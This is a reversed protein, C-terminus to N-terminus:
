DWASEEDGLTAAAMALQVMGFAMIGGNENRRVEMRKQVAMEAAKRLAGNGTIEPDAMDFLGYLHSAHRHAYNDQMDPWMWERLAGDSNIQYAPMMDLMERWKAVGATDGTAAAASICNRLLQKAVMIDMTANICAQWDSGAPNNEPSYSPIFVYKGDDGTVLFDEYFLAAEKMFPFAKERLFNDDGMHLWYDYYFNAAWGAGATWFTMPWTSDFHNNLGHSSTRSAINIGRAGFLRRANERYDDLMREQYSFYAEMLEPMNGPMISAIAVQLNGNQTYDGSWDSAWNGAWIGQLNPPNVGTASLINYRGADFQKEILGLVPENRNDSLMEEVPKDVAADLGDIDLSVRGFLDGHIRVHRQLLREYNGSLAGLRGTMRETGAGPEDYTGRLHALLVVEDTGSIILGSGESSIEADNSRVVAAGECGRLSGEWRNLFSGSYEIYRDATVVSYDGAAFGRDFYGRFVLPRRNLSLKFNVDNGDLNRVSMVTVTDARSVFLKREWRGGDDEWEVIVEGTSFNVSRRYNRVEGNGAHNIIIDFGPVFPDTWRKNGYGEDQSLGVVYKSAEGFNGAFMMKRITDLHSGMDVPPLPENLPMYLDWSSLIVTDALPLGYVLAGTVGNGSVMANEWRGIVKESFFGRDPLEREADSCGGTVLAVSILFCISLLTNM